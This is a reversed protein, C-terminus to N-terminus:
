ENTRQGDTPLGCEEFTKEESVDTVIQGFNM